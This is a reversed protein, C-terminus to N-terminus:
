QPIKVLIGNDKTEAEKFGNNLLAACVDQWSERLPLEDATLLLDYIGSAILENCKENLRLIHEEVWEFAILSYDMSQEPEKETDAEPACGDPETSTPEPKAIELVLGRFMLNNVQVQARKYGGSKNLLISLCCGDAFLVFANPSEWVWRATPYLYAVEQSIREQLVGFAKRLVSQETEPPPLLPPSVYVQKEAAKAGSLFAFRIIMAFVGLIILLLIPWLRMAFCIVSLVGLFILADYAFQRKRETDPRKLV